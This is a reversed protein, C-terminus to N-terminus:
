ELGDCHGYLEIMSQKDYELQNKCYDKSTCVMRTFPDRCLGYEEFVRDYIRQIEEPVENHQMMYIEIDELIDVAVKQMTHTIKRKM